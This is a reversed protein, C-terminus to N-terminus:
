TFFTMSLCLFLVSKGCTLIEEGHLFYGDHCEISCTIGVNLQQSSCTITSHKPAMLEMCVMELLCYQTTQIM